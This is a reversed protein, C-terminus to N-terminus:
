VSKDNDGTEDPRSHDPERLGLVGSLAPQNQQLQRTGLLRKNRDTGDPVRDRVRKHMIGTNAQGHKLISYAWM